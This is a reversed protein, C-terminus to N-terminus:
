VNQVYDDSGLDSIPSALLPKLAMLLGVVVSVERGSTFIVFSLDVSCDDGRARNLKYFGLM